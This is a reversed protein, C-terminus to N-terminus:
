SRDHLHAELFWVNKDVQRSIETFLDATDKDGRADATEIAARVKGGLDALASSLADLHDRGATVTRDYPRLTTREAVAQSTGEAVGGLQVAREALNDAFEEAHDAIQDFLEHLA